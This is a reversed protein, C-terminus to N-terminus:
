SNCASYLENSLMAIVSYSAAAASFVSSSTDLAGGGATSLPIGTSKKRFVEDNSLSLFIMMYYAM